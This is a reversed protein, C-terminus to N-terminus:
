LGGAMLERLKGLCQARDPRYDLEEWWSEVAVLLGGIRPGHPVGMDLLDRGKVPLDVPVWDRAADLLAAWCESEAADPRAELSRRAAWAVMVLDRFEDGGVKRLARRVAPGDMSFEVQVRPAATAAVRKAQTGSLKLRDGLALAGARDTVILAALRRIADPRIEPRALGRRELWALTRLRGFERAEPLIHALIGHSHMVLLSPTPDDALLLRVLEGAVREGSLGELRGAMRRCANLARTEMAIGRGYHAHFRFFRLLRLADEEIRKEPEGVFRVRGAAMDAIGDFPDYVNGEPDASLANMTFDRRSADARWDDTYEIRAHRGFSEVDVRLTTIEYHAKGIVATVTGHDIGTPIAHIGADDLLALVREPPDPTAIDIDRIPRKLLADRVCGGVFRVRAGDAQLAAVVARTEAADMWDQPGLLGIPDGPNLHLRTNSM